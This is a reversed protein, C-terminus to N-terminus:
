TTICWSCAIHISWAHLAWINPVSLDTLFLNLFKSLLHVHFYHLSVSWSHIRSQCIYPSTSFVVYFHCKKKLTEATSVHKVLLQYSINEVQSMSPSLIRSFLRRRSGWRRKQLQCPRPKPGHCKDMLRLGRRRHPIKHEWKAPTKRKREQLHQPSFVPSFTTLKM